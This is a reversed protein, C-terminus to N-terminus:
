VLTMLFFLVVPFEIRLHVCSVFVSGTRSAPSRSQLARSTPVETRTWSGVTLTSEHRRHQLVRYLAKRIM